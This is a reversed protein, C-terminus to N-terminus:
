TIDSDGYPTAESTWSVRCTYGRYDSWTVTDYQMICIHDELKGRTTIAALYPVAGYSIGGYLHGKGDDIPDSRLWRALIEQDHRDKCMVALHVITAASVLGKAVRSYGGSLTYVRQVGRPGTCSYGDAMVTLPLRPYADTM